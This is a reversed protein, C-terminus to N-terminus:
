SRSRPARSSPLARRDFGGFRCAGLILSFAARLAAPLGMVGFSAGAPRSRRRDSPPAAGSRRRRAEFRLYRSLLGSLGRRRLFRYLLGRGLRPPLLSAGRQSDLLIKRHGLRRFLLRAPPAFLIACPHGASLLVLHPVFGPLGTARGLRHLLRDLLDSVAALLDLAPETTSHRHVSLSLHPPKRLRGRNRPFGRFVLIRSFGPRVRHGGRHVVQEAIRPTM